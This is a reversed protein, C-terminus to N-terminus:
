WTTFQVPQEITNKSDGNHTESISSPNYLKRKYKNGYKQEEQLKIITNSDDLDHSIVGVIVNEQSSPLTLNHRPEISTMPISTMYVTNLDQNPDSDQDPGNKIGNKLNGGGAICGRPCAMVELFDSKCFDVPEEVKTNNNDQNNISSSLSISNDNGNATPRKRIFRKLKRPKVDKVLRRLNQINRFGFVQTSRVLIKGEEDILRFETVDLNRGRVTEIKYANDNDNDSMQFRRHLIYQWAFGGSSSGENTKFSTDINMWKPTVRQIADEWELMGITEKTTAFYKDVQEPTILNVLEKPTIVCDVLGISEPRMSELKKDFCPMISLHYMKEKNGDKLLHGTIEMPSKVDILLPLLDQQKKECYMLFGPCASCIKREGKDAVENMLKISEERGEQIGVVYRAGWVEQLYRIFMQDFKLVGMGFYQSLSVRCQPAISVSLIYGETKKENWEKVFVDQNQRSLLIEESSTICGVCALCDALSIEVKEPEKGVSLEGDVGNSPKSSVPKICAVEPTIFDNLDEERLLASM